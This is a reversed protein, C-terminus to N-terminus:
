RLEDVMVPMPFFCMVPYGAYGIDHIAEGFDHRLPFGTHPSSLRQNPPATNPQYDLHPFRM